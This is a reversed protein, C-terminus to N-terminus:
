GLPFSGSFSGGAPCLFFSRKTNLKVRPASVSLVPPTETSLSGTMKGAEYVCKAGLSLVKIELVIKRTGRLRLRRHKTNVTLHWPFGAGALEVEGFSSTDCRLSGASIVEATLMTLTSTVVVDAWNPETPVTCTIPGAPSEFTVSSPLATRTAAAAGGATLACVAITAALCLLVSRLKGAM